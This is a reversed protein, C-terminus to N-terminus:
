RANISVPGTWRGAIIRGYSDRGCGLPAWGEVDTVVEGVVVHRREDALPPQPLDILRGVRLQLTLHRELDQGVQVSSESISAM